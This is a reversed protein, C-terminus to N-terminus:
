SQSINTNSYKSADRSLSALALYCCHLQVGNRYWQRDIQRADVLGFNWKITLAMYDVVM